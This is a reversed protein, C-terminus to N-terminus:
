NAFMRFCRRHFCLRRKHLYCNIVSWHVWYVFVFMNKQWYIKNVPGISTIIERTRRKIERTFFVHSVCWISQSSHIMCLVFSCCGCICFIVHIHFHSFAKIAWNFLCGEVHEIPYWFQLLGKCTYKIGFVYTCLTHNTANQQSVWWKVWVGYRLTNSQQCWADRYSM